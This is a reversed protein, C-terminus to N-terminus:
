NPPKLPVGSHTFLPHKTGPGKRPSKEKQQNVRDLKTQHSSKQKLRKSTQEKRSLCLSLPNSPFISQTSSPPTSSVTIPIYQIPFSGKEIFPLCTVLILYSMIWITCIPPGTVRLTLGIHTLMSLSDKKNFSPFCNM